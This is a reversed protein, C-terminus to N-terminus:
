TRVGQDIENNSEGVEFTHRGGFSFVDKACIDICRGCNTCDSSLIVPSLGKKAGKLAPKIVHSEPCVLYCEMCDNCAARNVANVKLLSRSGVLSYFAGVPCLRGCWGDKAILLDFLFVSLLILWAAGMGFVIGRFMMSVPNVLEWVIGGSVVLPLVLTLGLMWYRASRSIQSSTRIGLKRRLWAALDTLMNVPCVWSCYARGGVAFYFLLVIVVGVVASTEPTVGSLVSQLLVHPDTLPLVELTMSAALNGKVIWVGLLPGALFLALIGLQSIRRLILWKHAGFWGKALIADDGLTTLDVM